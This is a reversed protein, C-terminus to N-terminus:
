IVNECFGVYVIKYGGEFKRYSFIVFCFIRDRNGLVIGRCEKRYWFLLYCKDNIYIKQLNRLFIDNKNYYFKREKLNFFICSCYEM